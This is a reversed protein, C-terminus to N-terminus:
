DVSDSHGMAGAVRGRAEEVELGDSSMGEMMFVYLTKEACFLAPKPSNAKKPHRV